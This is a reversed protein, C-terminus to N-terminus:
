SAPCLHLHLDVHSSGPPICSTIFTPNSLRGHPGAQLTRWALAYPKSKAGLIVHPGRLPTCVPTVHGSVAKLFTVLSSRLHGPHSFAVVSCLSRPQKSSILTAQGLTSMASSLFHDSELNIGFTSGSPSVSPRPPSLVSSSVRPATTPSKRRLLAPM